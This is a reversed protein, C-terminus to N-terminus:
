VLMQASPSVTYYLGVAIFALMGSFFLQQLITPMEILMRFIIRWSNLHAVLRM